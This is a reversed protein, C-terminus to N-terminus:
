QPATLAQAGGPQATGGFAGTAAGTAGEAGGGEFQGGVGAQGGATASAAANAVPAPPPLNRQATVGRAEEGTLQGRTSAATSIGTQKERAIEEARYGRATLESEYEAETIREARWMHRLTTADIDELPRKPKGSEGALIEAAIQQPLPQTNAPTPTPEPM